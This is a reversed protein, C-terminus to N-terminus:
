EPPDTDHAAEFRRGRLQGCAALIDRGKSKRIVATYHHKVLINQFALIKEDGPTRFDSGPYENFPILNFKCRVDRMGTALKEADTPADNIGDILIYEFTIMRRRPMPYDRCARILEELPYKQNIPMLASRQKNDPANLSVALNVSIDRGLRDIMPVIGCTSVTIRRKSFGLGVDSTIIKIARLTNEYNLLPEGMGMMVINKIAAGEHIGFRLAVVQGVIESPLLNRRFGHKGTLCFACGMQCGAQTSICLTWHNRERILVSEIYDGDFLRFLAKKTGDASEQIEEIELSSICAIEKIRERFDKALNTMGDFTTLNSQYIWKMIQRARYREKGLRAIFAELEEPTM